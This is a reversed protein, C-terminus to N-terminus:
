YFVDWMFYYGLIIKCFIYHCQQIAMVKCLSNRKIYFFYENFHKLPAIKIPKLLSTQAAFALDTYIVFIDNNYRFNMYFTM